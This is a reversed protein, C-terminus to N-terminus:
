INFNVPASRPPPPCVPGGAGAVHLCHAWLNGWLFAHICGYFPLPTPNRWVLTNCSSSRTGLAGKNFSNLQNSVLVRINTKTRTPKQKKYADNLSYESQAFAFAFRFKRRHKGNIRQDKESESGSKSPTFLGKVAVLCSWGVIGAWAPDPIRHGSFEPLFAEFAMRREVMM